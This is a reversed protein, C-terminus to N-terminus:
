GVSSIVFLKAMVRRREVVLFTLRELKLSTCTIPVVTTDSPMRPDWLKFYAIGDATRMM